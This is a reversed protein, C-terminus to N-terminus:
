LLRLLAGHMMAPALFGRADTGLRAAVTARDQAIIGLLFPCSGHLALMDAAAGPGFPACLVLGGRGTQVRICHANLATDDYRTAAGDLGFRRLEDLAAELDRTCLAVHDVQMAGAAHEAIVGKARLMPARQAPLISREILIPLPIATPTVSTPYVLRSVSVFGDPQVREMRIPDDVLLGNARMAAVDADLTETEFALNGFGEGQELFSVAQRCIGSGSALAEAADEIALLEIYFLSFYCLHNASGFGVHQGGPTANLGLGRLTDAAVDRDRVWHSVHDLLITM